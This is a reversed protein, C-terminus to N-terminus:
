SSSRVPNVATTECSSRVGSARASANISDPHPDPSLDECLNAGLDLLHCSEDVVDEEQGLELATAGHNGEPRRLSEGLQLTHGGLVGVAGVPRVDLQLHGSVPVCLERKPRPHERDDDLVHDLVRKAVGTRARRERKGYRARRLFVVSM